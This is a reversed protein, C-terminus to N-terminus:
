LIKDELRSTDLDAMSFGNKMWRFSPSLTNLKKSIDNLIDKHAHGQDIDIFKVETLKNGACQEIVPICEAWVSLAFSKDIVSQYDGLFANRIDYPSSQGYGFMDVLYAAVQARDCGFHAREYKFNLFDNESKHYTDFKHPDNVMFTTLAAQLISGIVVGDATGLAPVSEGLVYGFQNYLLFDDENNIPCNHKKILKQSHSFIYTGTLLAAYLKPTLINVLERSTTDEETLFRNPFLSAAGVYIANKITELKDIPKLAPLISEEENESAKILETVCHRIVEPVPAFMAAYERAKAWSGPENVEVDGNVAVDRLCSEKNHHTM